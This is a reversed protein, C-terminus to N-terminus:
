YFRSSIHDDLVFKKTEIMTKMPSSKVAKSEDKAPEKLTMKEVSKEIEKVEKIKEGTKQVNRIWFLEANLMQITILM